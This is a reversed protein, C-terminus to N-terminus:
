GWVTWAEPAAETRGRWGAEVLASVVKARLGRIREMGHIVRLAEASRRFDMRDRTLWRVILAGVQDLRYPDDGERWDRDCCGRSAPFRAMAARDDAGRLIRISGAPAVDPCNWWIPINPTWLIMADALNIGPMIM